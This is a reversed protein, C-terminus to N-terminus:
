SRFKLGSCLASICPYQQKSIIHLSFCAPFAHTCPANTSGKCCSSCLWLQGTIELSAQAKGAVEELMGGGLLQNLYCGLITSGADDDDDDDHNLLAIHSMRLFASCMCAHVM